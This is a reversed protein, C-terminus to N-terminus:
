SAAHPAPATEPEEAAAEPVPAAAPAAESAPESAVAPAPAAEAAPTEVPAPAAAVTEVAPAPAAAEAVPAAVPEPAAVPAPAPAPAPATTPATIPAPAPPPGDAPLSAPLAEPEPQPSGAEPIPGTANTPQAAPANLPKRGHVVYIPWYAHVNTDRLVKRAKSVLVLVEERSWGLARTLPALSSPELASDMNALSWMGLDKYKKDRPWRNIPWKYITQTVDEFGCQEMLPKWQQASVVPRGLKEMSEMVLGMWIWLDSDKKLTGDDCGIPLAMDQAEYYGGPELAEYAKQVVAGNDTFSGAMMRAFIFDFPRDWTWEKELDDIEFYCNPPVFEPQVPSLDVGIVEADPHADAYEMAWIGTGTGLDLVRRAGENKPCLCHNGEITLTLVHHQLDLREIEAEDNPLFYKGASMAHYTRGNEHQYALISSRLSTLSERFPIPDDHDDPHINAAVAGDDFVPPVAGAPPPSAM